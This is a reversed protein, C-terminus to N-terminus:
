RSSLVVSNSSSDFVCTERDIQLKDISLRYPKAKRRAYELLKRRTQRKSPSFDESIEFKSGKLKRASALINQKDKFATMKAIISWCKNSAFRGLRHVRDFESGTMTIDLNKSCFSIINLETTTWDEKEDDEIGFFFTYQFTVNLKQYRRM